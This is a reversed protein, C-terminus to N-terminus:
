QIQTQAVLALLGKVSQLAEVVTPVLIASLILLLSGVALLEILSFGATKTRM